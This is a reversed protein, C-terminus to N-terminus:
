RGLAEAVRARQAESMQLGCKTRRWLVDEASAAWEQAVFYRLERETLGAGYHEGVVGDGLVAFAQAGHRRFVGRVVAEPLARYRDFVERRAEARSAFDSGPLPDRATWAGKTGPFHPVLRELAEEALRRYTTIKGGFVSLVPADGDRDLRLTYDRTVASPDRSGDDYLPRVGAYRWVVSSRELPRALYRNVAACLYGVEQESAEPARADRVPVDTTGILTFREEYPIMFVVRRDDNQLIFAHEGEYLKPVVIHSGKVLRVADASPQGLRENLVEKVWPGAANVVARAPLTEGNSLQALWLGGERRASLCETRVLVRAGRRAADAANALVLRADDVRCDAYAFGHRLGDKLGSSYPPADLRVAQSAPLVSRRALHDYLFLGVRIMWRPRLEPVHPMVFRTPWALHGAVRLLIEREALAEHVLRFEYQELYRLGGHILKSSASSTAAALDAREVLVTALGRGAADRAIGAGNIGGGIVLLDYTVARQV